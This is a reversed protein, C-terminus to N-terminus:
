GWLAFQQRTMERAHKAAAGPETEPPTYHGLRSEIRRRHLAERRARRRAAAVIRTVINPTKM